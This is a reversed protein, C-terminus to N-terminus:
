RTTRRQLALSSVLGIATSLWYTGARYVIAASTAAAATAGTTPVLILVLVFEVGGAGGPLPTVSAITAVPVVIFVLALPVTYDIAHLSLWLTLCLFVWGIASYAISHALRRRDDAVHTIADFFGTVRHRISEATPPTFGPIISAVRHFFPTLASIIGLEIRDRRQWALYGITPIGIALAVVVTAVIELSDGVTFRAAYYLLGLAALTISPLFNIADVSAITALSTEYEADTARSILYASFPEGGAQGFPTVNNAFAASAYLLFGRVHGVDIELSALVSRLCAGWAALWALGALTILAISTADLLGLAAAVDSTGVLYVLGGLVVATGLFGLAVKRADVDLQM